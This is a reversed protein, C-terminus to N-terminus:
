SKLLEPKKAESRDDELVGLEILTKVALYNNKKCWSDLDTDRLIINIMTELTNLCIKENNHRHNSELEQLKKFNIKM